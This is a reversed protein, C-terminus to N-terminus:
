KVPGARGVRGPRAHEGAGARRARQDLLLPEPELGDARGPATRLLHILGDDAILNGSFDLERLRALAPNEAIFELSDPQRGDPAFKVPRLRRLPILDFLGAFRERFNRPSQEVV